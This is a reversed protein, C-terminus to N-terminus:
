GEIFDILKKILNIWKPVRAASIDAPARAASIDTGSPISGPILQKEFDDRTMGPKCSSGASNYARIFAQGDEEAYIADPSMGREHYTYVKSLYENLWQTKAGGRAVVTAMNGLAQRVFEEKTIGRRYAQKTELFSVVMHIKAATIAKVQITTEPSRLLSARTMPRRAEQREEVKEVPSQSNKSEKNQGQATTVTGALLISGFFIVTLKMKHKINM